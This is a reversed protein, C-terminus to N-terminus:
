ESETRSRSRSTPAPTGQRRSTQFSMHCTNWINGMRVASWAMSLTPRNKSSSSYSVSNKWAQLAFFCRRRSFVAGSNKQVRFEARPFPGPPALVLAPVAISAPGANIVYQTDGQSIASVPCADACAGCSVCADSIVYAM